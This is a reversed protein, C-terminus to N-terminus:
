SGEAAIYIEVYQPYESAILQYGVLAMAFADEAREDSCDILMEGSDTRAEAIDCGAHLLYGLLSGSIASVGACIIDQGRASYGAHGRVSLRHHKGERLYNVRIM